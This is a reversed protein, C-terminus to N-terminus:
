EKPFPIVQTGGSHLIEREFVDSIGEIGRQRATPFSLAWEGGGGGRGGVKEYCIFFPFSRHGRDTLASHSVERDGLPVHFAEHITNEIFSGERSSILSGERYRKRPFM